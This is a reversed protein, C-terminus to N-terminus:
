IDTRNLENCQEYPFLYSIIACYNNAVLGQIIAPTIVQSHTTM